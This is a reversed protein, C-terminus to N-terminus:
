RQHYVRAPRLIRIGEWHHLGLLEEDLSVIVDARAAVALELVRNNSASLCDTVTAPPAYWTAYARLAGLAAGLHAHDLRRAIFPRSLIAALAAEVAPSLPLSPLSWLTRESLTDHGVLAHALTAPDLIL